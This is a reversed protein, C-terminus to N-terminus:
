RPLKNCGAWACCTRRVMRTFLFGAVFFLGAGTIGLNLMQLLGGQLGQFNLSFLGLMVVGMHSLSAFALVRRLNVQVLAILAGYVMSAAGLIALLWYWEQAAQPLLPIM